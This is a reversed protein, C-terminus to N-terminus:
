LNLQEGATHAAPEMRCCPRPCVPILTNLLGVQGTRTQRENTKPDLNRFALELNVLVSIETGSRESSNEM